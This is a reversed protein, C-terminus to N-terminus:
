AASRGKQATGKGRDEFWLQLAIALPLWTVLWEARPSQLFSPGDVQLAVSAFIWTVLMLAGLSQTRHRWGQWGMWAWVLLWLVLGPLGVEIAVNTFINHSHTLVQSGAIVQYDSGLGLGSWPHAEIFALAQRFIQPRYSMGRHMLESPMVVLVLLVAVVSGAALGLSWRDRRWLVMGVLCALLAVWSGRSGTWGVFVLLVVMASWGLYRRWGVPPVLQTLWLFACAMVYASLNPGDLLALGIMRHHWVIHRWPFAIMAALAAASLVVATWWLLSQVQARSRGLSWALWASLYLVVFIPAKLREAVQVGTAWFLTIGSWVLLALCLQLPPSRLWQWALEGRRRVLVILGPLFLTLALTWHYLSRPQHGPTVAMGVPLWFLGLMLWLPLRGAHSLSGFLQERPVPDSPRFADEAVHAPASFDNGMQEM